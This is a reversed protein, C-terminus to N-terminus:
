GRDLLRRWNVRTFAYLLGLVVLQSLLFYAGSAAAGIQSDLQRAVLVGGSFALSYSVLRGLYFPLALLWLPARTLGYALFLLNSPLPSFAFLLFAAASLSRRSEIKEALAALNDRMGPRVWASRAITQASRALVLRGATAATAAVLAALLPNFEPYRMGIFSLAMWTPPAFAPMVNLLFVILFLLVLLNM